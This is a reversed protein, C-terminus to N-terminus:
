ILLINILEGEGIVFSKNELVCLYIIFVFSQKEFVNQTEVDFAYCSFIYVTIIKYYSEEEQM